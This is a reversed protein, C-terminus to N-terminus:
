GHGVAEPSGGTPITAPIRGIPTGVPGSAVCAHLCWHGSGHDDGPGAGGDSAQEAPQLVLRGCVQAAHGDSAREVPGADGAVLDVVHDHALDDLGAGALDGCALRGDLAADRHGDRGDRDVLHAQRADVGDGQGVLQDAGALVLDDDRTAHLRHGLRRVQQRLRALAELVAVRLQDVRHRVVREVVLEGVLRHDVQGLAVVGRAGVQAALLLVREGRLRVLPGRQGPLVASKSSSTTGTM